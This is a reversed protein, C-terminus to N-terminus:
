GNMKDFVDSLTDDITTPKARMEGGAKGRINVANAQRAQAVTKSTQEKRTAEQAALMKERTTPNAWVAQDYAAQLIDRPSKEPNRQRIASVLPALDDQLDSWHPRLAQGTADKESAFSEIEGITRDQSEKIRDREIQQQLTQLNQELMRVRDSSQDPQQDTLGAQSLDIGARRALYAIAERPKFQLMRDAEILTEIYQADSVGARQLNERLPDIVQNIAQISKREEALEMTKQTVAKESEKERALIMEQADQPLASFKAKFEESWRPHPEVQAEEAPKTEETATEKEPHEGEDTEAPNEDLAPEPTETASDENLKDFAAGMTDEISVSIEEDGGAINMDDAM